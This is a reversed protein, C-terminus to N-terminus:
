LSQIYARAIWLDGDEETLDELGAVIRGLYHLSHTRVYENRDMNMREGLEAFIRTQIRNILMYEGIRKIGVQNAGTTRLAHEQRSGPRYELWAKM